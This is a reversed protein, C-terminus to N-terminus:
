HMIKDMAEAEHQLRMLYKQERFNVWQYDKSAVLKARYLEVDRWATGYPLEEKRFNSALGLHHEAVEQIVREREHDTLKRVFKAPNGAWLEGSPIRRAPPVVSGPALISESEVIAGECVVSRAGILVKPEIRCARLVSYPEVTVYEAIITAPNLGTPVARATHVVARDLIVSSGGIRVKNLDGRVVAGYFVAVKDYIDVDGIVVANPAVWTDAQYFPVKDLLPMIPRQRNYWEDEIKELKVAPGNPADFYNLSRKQLLQLEAGQFGPAKLMQLLHGGARRLM